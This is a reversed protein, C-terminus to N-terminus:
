TTKLKLNSTRVMNNIKLITAPLYVLWALGTIAFAEYARCWNKAGSILDSFGLFSVFFTITNWFVFFNLTHYFSFVPQITTGSVPHHNVANSDRIKDSIRIPFLSQMVMVNVTVHQDTTNQNIEDDGIISSLFIDRKDRKDRKEDRIREKKHRNEM